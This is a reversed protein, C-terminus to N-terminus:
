ASLSFECAFAGLETLTIRHSLSFEAAVADAVNLGADTLRFGREDVEFLGLKALRALQDAYIITRM